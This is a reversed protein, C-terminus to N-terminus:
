APENISVVFNGKMSELEEKFTPVPPMTFVFQSGGSPERNDEVWIKGGMTEIAQKCFSLGIGTGRHSKGRGGIMEFRNFIRGKDKDPVGMGTDSIIVRAGGALRDQPETHSITVKVKGGAPTFKIANDILNSLIRRVMSRDGWIPEVSDDAELELDVNKRFSLSLLSEIQMRAISSIDLAEVDASLKGAEMRSIDLLSDIMDLLQQTTRQGNNIIMEADPNDIMPAMWEFGTYIASVPNKLDHVVMSTFERQWEEREVQETVDRFIIMVGSVEGNESKLVKECRELYRIKGDEEMPVVQKSVEPINGRRINTILKILEVPKYGIISIAQQTDFVGNVPEAGTMTALFNDAPQNSMKVSGNLDLIVFGDTTSNLVATLWETKTENDLSKHSTLQMQKGDLIM